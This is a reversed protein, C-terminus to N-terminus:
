LGELRDAEETVGGGGGGGGGDCKKLEMEECIIPLGKQMKANVCIRKGERSDDKSLIIIYIFLWTCTLLFM